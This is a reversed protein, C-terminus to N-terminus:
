EYRLAVMPDVRTARRAPIWCALLAVALLLAAVGAFTLPDSPTIGILLSRILGALGLAAALGTAIGALALRGGHGLIMRFVDQPLAGLAMRVGIERTRQAVLFAMVGYVGVMAVAAAVLAFIGLLMMNFRPNVLQRDVLDSMTFFRGLEMEPDLQGLRTRVAPIVATPDGSTRVVMHIAWRPMQQHPWYIEPQPVTDPRFPRVDSVVGVIELTVQSAGMHVRQGIPSTGPWHRRAMTENIIGVTPTDRTDRENFDRGELFPIGLTRFYSPEIDFWAVVPKQGAPPEPRGEIRFEQEGDGGFLPGASTASASLVGPLQTLEAVARQHLQAVQRGQPYKAPSSFVSVMLLNSRDFGPQWDLLQAFSRLLLGAGVLLVVALAVETAVLVSRIRGAARGATTSRAGRLTESPNLDSAHLAPAAGFLMGTLVALLLGWLLAAGDVQVLELRPFWVPALAVFLDVTWVALVMGALSGLLALLLSEALLQQLVGRRGAGMALRVAVERERTSARALLLNAVNACAVLLVLGAAILFLLLAPKVRRVTWDHLPELTLGWAANDEPYTSQLNAHIAAMEAQAQALTAGDALRAFPLFGRWGRFTQREPWLPIWLEVKDLYLPAAFDPPLVGVVQYDDGDLSFSQGVVDPKGGLRDRWFAHSIVAVQHGGAEMDRPLFLRGAAPQARLVRFLDATAVGGQVPLAAGDFKASFPWTRALALSDFSRAARSWDALNAPSAGCWDAPREPHTECALVLQHPQPYPLPRLLVGRVFSFIAVNAGVGLALTMIVLFTFTPARSAQRAAFRFDLLLRSM